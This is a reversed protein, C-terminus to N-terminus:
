FCNELVITGSKTISILRSREGTFTDDDLGEVLTKMQGGKGLRSNLIPQTLNLDLIPLPLSRSLLRLRSRRKRSLTQKPVGASQSRARRENQSSANPNQSKKQGESRSKVSKSRTIDSQKQRHITDEKTTHISSSGPNATVSYQREMSNASFYESFVRDIRNTDM